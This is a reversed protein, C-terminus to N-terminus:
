KNKSKWNLYEREAEERSVKNDNMFKEIKFEEESTFKQKEGAWTDQLEPITSKVYPFAAKLKIKVQKKINKEYFNKGNPSMILNTNGRGGKKVYEEKSINEMPITADGYAWKGGIEKINVNVKNDSKIKSNDVGLIDDSNLSAGIPKDFVYAKEAITNDLMPKNTYEKYPAEPPKEPKDPKEPNIQYEQDQLMREKVYKNGWTVAMQQVLPNHELERTNGTQLGAQVLGTFEQISKPDMGSQAALAILEVPNGLSIMNKVLGRRGGETGSLSGYAANVINGADPVQSYSFRKYTKGDRVVDMGQVPHMQDVIDYTGKVIQDVDKSKEHLLPVYKRTQQYTNLGAVMDQRDHTNDNFLSMDQKIQRDSATLESFEKALSSAQQQVYMLEEMGYQGRQFGKKGATMTILNNRLDNIRKVMYNKNEEILTEPIDISGITKSIQAQYTLNDQYRKDLYRNFANNLGEAFGGLGAAAPNIGSGSYNYGAM